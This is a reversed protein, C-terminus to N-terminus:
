VEALEAMEVEKVNEIRKERAEEAEERLVEDLDYEPGTQKRAHGRVAKAKSVTNNKMGLRNM